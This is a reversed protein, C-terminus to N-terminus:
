NRNRMEEELVEDREIRIGRVMYSFVLLSFYNFGCVGLCWVVKGVGVVGKNRIERLRM